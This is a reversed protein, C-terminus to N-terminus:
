PMGENPDTEPVGCGCRSSTAWSRGSRPCASNQPRPDNQRSRVIRYRYIATPLVRLPPPPSLPRRRFCPPRSGVQGGGFIQGWILLVWTKAFYGAMLVAFVEVGWGMYFSSLAAVAAFMVAHLRDAATKLRAAKVGM